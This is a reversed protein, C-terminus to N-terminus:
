LQELRSKALDVWPSKIDLLNATDKVLVANFKEKSRSFDGIFSYYEGLYYLAMVNLPNDDNSALEELLNAAENQNKDFLILGYTTKILFYYDSNSGFKSLAQDLTSLAKDYDGQNALSQAQYALFFPAIGASSNQEYALRFALESEDWDHLNSEKSYFGQALARSYVELADNFSLQAKAQVTTNHWKYAKYGGYGLLFVVLGITTYFNSKDQRFERIWVKIQYTDVYKQLKKIM